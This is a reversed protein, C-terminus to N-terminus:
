LGLGAEPLFLLPAFPLVCPLPPDILRVFLAAVTCLLPNGHLHARFGHFPLMLERHQLQAPLPVVLKFPNFARKKIRLIPKFSTLSHAAQRLLEPFLQIFLITHPVSVKGPPAFVQACEAVQALLDDFSKSM